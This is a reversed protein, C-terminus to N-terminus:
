EAYTLEYDPDFEPFPSEKAFDFAEEIENQIKEKMKAVDEETLIKEQFLKKKYTEIPCKELWLNVEEPSRYGLDTDYNPGCHERYRYTNLKIFAPGNGNQIFDIAEKAITYSEEVHNGDGEKAFMGHAEAIKVLNRAKSQRVNVPSYVSYLNDECVYLIPLNKLAAFNLSEGFVGEETAGEGFYSVSIKKDGKLFSAFALGTAVPISNAVIPTSGMMGVSLDVLHMSGGRGMACGTKKGHIEAIMPKLAGGKALYHAHARHNSMVFDEKKLAESVGVAIAEQGISLHTPCRMKQESYRDAITEEILRIRLM